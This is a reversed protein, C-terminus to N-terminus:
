QEVKEVIQNLLNKILQNNNTLSESDLSNLKKYVFDFEQAFSKSAENKTLGTGIIGLMASHIVFYDDEKESVCQLPQKLIYKMKGSIIMNPAYKFSGQVKSHSSIAKRYIKACAKNESMTISNHNLAM